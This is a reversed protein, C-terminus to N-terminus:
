HLEDHKTEIINGKKETISIDLDEPDKMLVEVKSSV